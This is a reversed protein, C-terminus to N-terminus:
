EHMQYSTNYLKLVRMRIVRDLWGGKDSIHTFSLKTLFIYTAMFMHKQTLYTFHCWLKLCINKLELDYIVIFM